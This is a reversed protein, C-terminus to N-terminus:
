SKSECDTSGFGGRRNVQNVLDQDATLFKQFVVQAIRDGKHIILDQDSTNCVLVYLHGDNTPNNYYDADILGIGNPLWIGKGAGSSRNIIYYCEDPQCYAKIGTPVFVPKMGPRFPPIITDEGAELDYGAAHATSRRPLNIGRNEWGKIIEFGRTKM